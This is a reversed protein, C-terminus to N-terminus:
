ALMTKLYLKLIDGHYSTQDQYLPTTVTLSLVESNKRLFHPGHPPPNSLLKMFSMSTLKAIFLLTSLQISYIEYNKLWYVYDIIIDSSKSLQYSINTLGIWSSGLDENRIPSKKSKSTLSLKSPPNSQKKWSRGIKLLEQHGITGWLNIVTKMGGARPIGLSILENLIREECMSSPHPSPISLTKLGIVILYMLSTSTELSLYSMKLSCIKKM